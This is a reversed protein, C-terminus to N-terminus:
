RQGLEPRPGETEKTTIIGLEYLEMAWSIISGTELNDVHRVPGGPPQGSLVTEASEAIRNAALPARLPTNRARMTSLPGQLSGDPFKISPAATYRAASAGPWTTSAGHDGECIEDIRKPNSTMPTKLMQNYQFNRTRVGGWSNTAGWIFPTGLTGQTQNVKASTIQEIFKKNHELADMPHALKIDMDGRCAIAKLNKSGMVCGMGSRGGSNKIGTMVCAYTVLNEGAAGIVMSKIEQDDHDERIAWQTETCTKGWLHSADRIEIEGNHIWLYVPKEAKGTIVLHHFGAWAMEPAFFGGMNCSGLLNTLPSKAM